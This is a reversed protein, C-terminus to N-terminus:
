VDKRFGAPWFRFGISAVWLGLAVCAVGALFTASVKEHLLWAGLGTATIPNLALFITVRTPSTHHLAWLWLYYGIGSSAGIFAVAAWGGPSFHPVARFFGERAAPFALAVVSAAMALTGVQLTPYKKLYPRYLVSCLAGAFASLFVVPERTIGGTRGPALTSEGLALGVGIITLVVGASKALSLKEQGLVAAILMTQLPFTAFILAVRASGITELAYNLLAVVIGFQTIGLLSIPLLDRAAFPVRITKMLFPVLCGAGIAYRLLALSFPHTQGIVFRTAVIASGVQVGVAAAALGAWFGADARM